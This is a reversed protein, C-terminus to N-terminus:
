LGPAKSAESRLGRRVCTRNGGGGDGAAIAATTSSSCNSRSSSLETSHRMRVSSCVRPHRQCKFGAYISSAGRARGRGSLLQQMGSIRQLYIVTVRHASGGRSTTCWAGKAVRYGVSQM